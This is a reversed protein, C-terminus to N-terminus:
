RATRADRSNSRSDPNSFPFVRDLDSDEIKNRSDAPKSCNTAAKCFAGNDNMLTRMKDKVYAGLLSRDYKRELQDLVQDNDSVIAQLASFSQTVAMTDVALVLAEDAKRKAEQMERDRRAQEAVAARQAKEADDTVKLIQRVLTQEEAVLASVEAGLRRSEGELTSAETRMKSLRAYFSARERPELVSAFDVEGTAPDIRDVSGALRGHEARLKKAEDSQRQAELMKATIRKGVENMRRSLSVTDVTQAFSSSAFFIISIASVFKVILLDRANFFGFKTKM